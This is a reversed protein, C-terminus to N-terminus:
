LNIDRVILPNNRVKCPLRSCGDASDDPRLASAVGCLHRQCCPRYMLRYFLFFISFFYTQLTHSQTYSGATPSGSFPISGPVANSSRGSSQAQGSQPTPLSSKLGTSQLNLLCCTGCKRIGSQLMVADRKFCPPMVVSACPMLFLILIFAAYICVLRAKLPFCVPFRQFYLILFLVSPTGARLDQTM